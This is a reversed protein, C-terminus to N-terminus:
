STQKPRCRHLRQRRVTSSCRRVTRALVDISNEWVEDWGSAAAAHVRESRGLLEGM